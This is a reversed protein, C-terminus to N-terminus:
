GLAWTQADCNLSGATYDRGDAFASAACFFLPAGDM